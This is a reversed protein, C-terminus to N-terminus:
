FGEITGSFPAQPDKQCLKVFLVGTLYFLNLTWGSPDPPLIRLLIGIRGAENYYNNRGAKDYRSNLGSEDYGSKCGADDYCM